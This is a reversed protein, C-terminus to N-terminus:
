KPENPARPPTARQTARIHDPVKPFAATVTSRERAVQASSRHLKAMQSIEHRNRLGATERSGGLPQVGNLRRKCPLDLVQLVVYTRPEDFTTSAWQLQCGCPLGKQIFRFQRERLGFPRDFTRPLGRAVVGAPQRQAEQQPTLDIQHHSHHGWQVAFELRNLQDHAPLCPEVKDLSQISPLPVGCEHPGIGVAMPQQQLREVAFTEAPYPRLFM